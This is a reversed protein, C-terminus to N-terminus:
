WQCGSAGQAADLNLGVHHEFAGAHVSDIGGIGFFIRSGDLKVLNGIVLDIVATELDHVERCGSEALLVM